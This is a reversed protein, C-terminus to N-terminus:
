AAKRKGRENDTLGVVVSKNDEKKEPMFSVGMTASLFIPLALIAILPQGSFLGIIVCAMMLGFRLIVKDFSLAFFRMDKYKITNCIEPLSSAKEIDHILPAPSM